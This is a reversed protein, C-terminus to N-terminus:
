IQPTTARKFREMLAAAFDISKERNKFARKPIMLASGKSIYLFILEETVKVDHIEKYPILNDGLNSIFNIGDDKLTCVVNTIIKLANSATIFSLFLIIPFAIISFGIFLVCLPYNKLLLFVIGIAFATLNMILFLSCRIKEFSFSDLVFNIIDQKTYQYSVTLENAM